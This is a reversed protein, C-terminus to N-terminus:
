MEIKLRSRERLLLGAREVGTIRPSWTVGLIRRHKTSLEKYKIKTRFSTNSLVIRMQTSSMM